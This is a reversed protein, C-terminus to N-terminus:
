RKPLCSDAFEGNLLGVGPQVIQGSLLDSHRLSPFTPEHRRRFPQTRCIGLSSSTKALTWSVVIALRRLGDDLVIARAHLEDHIHTSPPASWGGVIASGLRPTINSTAAGAKFVKAQALQLASADLTGLLLATLLVITKEM